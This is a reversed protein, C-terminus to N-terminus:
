QEAEEESLGFSTFFDETQEGMACILTSVQVPESREFLSSAVRYREFRKIWRPWGDPQTFDFQEPPILLVSAAM